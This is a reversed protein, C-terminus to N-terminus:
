ETEQFLRTQRTKFMEKVYNIFARGVLENVEENANM